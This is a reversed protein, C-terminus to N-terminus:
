IFTLLTLNLGFVATIVALLSLGCVGIMIYNRNKAKKSIKSFRQKNIRYFTLFSVCVFDLLTTIVPNFKFINSSRIKGYQIVEGESVAVVDNCRYCWYNSRSEPNQDFYDTCWLPTMSLPAVLFYLFVVINKIVWLWM